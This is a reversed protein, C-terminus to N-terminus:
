LNEYQNLIDNIDYNFDSNFDVAGSSFIFWLMYVLWCINLVMSIASIIIGAIAFGSKRGTNPNKRACLGLILGILAPIIGLGYCCCIVVSIIGLIMSAIGLGDTFPQQVVTSAVQVQPQPIEQSQPIEQPQPMDEFHPAANTEENINEFENDM